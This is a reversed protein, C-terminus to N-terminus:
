KGMLDNIIDQTNQIVIEKSVVTWTEADRRGREFEKKGYSEIDQILYEVRFTTFTGTGDKIDDPEEAHNQLIKLIETNEPM